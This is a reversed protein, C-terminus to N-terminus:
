KRIFYYLSTKGGKKTCLFHIKFSLIFSSDLEMNRLVLSYFNFLFRFQIKYKEVGGLRTASNETDIQLVNFNIQLESSLTGRNNIM